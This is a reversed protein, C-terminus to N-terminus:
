LKLRSGITNKLEEHEKKVKKLEEQLDEYELKLKETQAYKGIKELNEKLEKLEPSLEKIAEVKEKLDAIRKEMGTRQKSLNKHALRIGEESYVVKLKHEAVSLVKPEDVKGEIDPVPDTKNETIQSKEQILEKRRDDYTLKSAEEKQESAM